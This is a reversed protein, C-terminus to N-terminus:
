VKITLAEAVYVIDGRKLDLAEETVYRNELFGDVFLSDM